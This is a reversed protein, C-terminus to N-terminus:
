HTGFAKPFCKTIRCEWLSPYKRQEEPNYQCMCIIKLAENTNINNMNKSKKYVRDVMYFLFLFKYSYKQMNYDFDWWCLYNILQCFLIVNILTLSQAQKLEYMKVHSFFLLHCTFRTDTSWSPAWVTSLRQQDAAEFLCHAQKQPVAINRSSVPM